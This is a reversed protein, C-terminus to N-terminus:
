CDVSDQTILRDLGNLSQQVVEQWQQLTEPDCRGAKLADDLKQSTQFLAMLGLNGALGKLQHLKRETAQLNGLRIEAVIEEFHVVYDQRFRQLLQLLQRRNGNLMQLTNDFDFLPMNMAQSNIFGLEASGAIKVDVWRLLTELLHRPNIPKAIHDNMGVKICTHRDHESVAATMAIIPLNVGDSRQRIQLATEFGDMVPMQLDLLVASFRQEDLCALAEQGHNAVVVELGVRELFGKAVVQNLVNDEVLLVAKGNFYPAIESYSSTVSELRRTQRQESTKVDVTFWFRCGSGPQSDVGISGGMLEVLRKCIALGLGTGGFRRSISTDAQTFPQFLNETETASMGIGTDSICFQLLWRDSRQTGTISLMIEGHETFKVANSVLNSLVQLLHQKDGLVRQPLKADIHKLLSLNKQSIPVSFIEGVEELLAHLDFQRYEIDIKGAEIKSFDLVDNVIGLLSKSAHQIKDLYDRLQPALPQDQCLDSLGIIANLPTRIEHSMNALFESKARNASEAQSKADLLESEIVKRETIDVAMCAFIPEEGIGPIAFITALVYRVGGDRHHNVYENPGSTSGCAELGPLLAAFMAAQRQSHTLCELTKGIAEESRWGYLLESARNWYIVRGQHDYWQVAINPTRELTARLRQESIQLRMENQIAVTVDRFSWIRANIDGVMLPRTYAEFIRGDKFYVPATHEENCAYLRRVEEFLVVPDSLQQQVFARLQAIQSIEWLEDPIAWMGKFRQNVKLLRGSGDVVLIGDATSNLIAKLVIQSEELQRQQSKRESIDMTTGLTRLARGEADREVIRGRVYLWRWNGQGDRFRYETEYLSRRDTMMDDVAALFQARDEEHVAALWHDFSRPADEPSYGLLTYLEPSWYNIANVNDYEWVAQDTADLALQMQVKLRKKETLLSRRQEFVDASVEIGLHELLHRQGIVGLVLQQDDVVVLHRIRYQTMIAVAETVTHQYSMMRVPKSMVEGISVTQPDVHKALLKPIDRETLIGVAKRADAVLVYDSINDEMLSLASALSVQPDLQLLDRDMVSRVDKIKRFVDQNLQSRFDTESVIGVLQGSTSTVVLHRIHHKRLLSYASHFDTDPRVTMVPSSMIEEARQTNPLGAQYHRLLDRETIIGIPRKSDSVVLCSISQEGMKMAIENILATPQTVSVTTTMLDALTLELLPKMLAYERAVGHEFKQAKL